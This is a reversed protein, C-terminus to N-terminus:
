LKVLIYDHGNNLNGSILLLTKGDTDKQLDVVQMPGLGGMMYEATIQGQANTQIFYANMGSAGGVLIDNEIARLRRPTEINGADFINEGIMNGDGSFHKIVIDKDDRTCAIFLQQGPQMSAMSTISDLPDLMSEWKLYGDKDTMFIWQRGGVVVNNELSNIASLLGKGM